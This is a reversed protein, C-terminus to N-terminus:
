MGGLSGKGTSWLLHTSESPVKKAVTQAWKEQWCAYFSRKTKRSWEKLYTDISVSSIGRHRRNGINFLGLVWSKRVLFTSWDQLDGKCVEALSEETARNDRKYQLSISSSECYLIKSFRKLYKLWLSLTLTLCM